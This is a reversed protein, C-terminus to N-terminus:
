LPSVCDNRALSFFHLRNLPPSFGACTASCLWVAWETLSVGRPPDMGLCGVVLEWSGTRHSLAMWWSVPCCQGCAAKEWGWALAILPGLALCLCPYAAALLLLVASAFLLTKLALCEASSLQKGPPM